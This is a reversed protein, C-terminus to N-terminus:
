GCALGVGMGFTFVLGLLVMIGVFTLTEARRERRLQERTRVKEAEQGMYGLHDSGNGCHYLRIRGYVPLYELSTRGGKSGFLRM